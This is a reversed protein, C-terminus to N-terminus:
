KGGNRFLTKLQEDHSVLKESHNDLREDHRKLVNHIEARDTKSAELDRNLLDLSHSMKTLNETIQTFSSLVPKVFFAILVIIAMIYGAWTALEKVDLM